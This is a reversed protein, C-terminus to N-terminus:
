LAAHQGAEAAHQPQIGVRWVHLTWRPQLREAIRRRRPLIVEQQHAIRRVREVVAVVVVMHGRVELIHAIARFEAFTPREVGLGICVLVVVM